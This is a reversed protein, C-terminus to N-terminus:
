ALREEILKAVAVAENEIAQRDEGEIMVRVLPETGSPRILVRGRGDMKKELVKIKETIVADDAYAHKNEESVRANVLVQPLITVVKSLRSLLMDERKMIGLLQIGTLIGDGTTNHDLFIIHGSQEGGLNYGSKLMEELVYRDGVDTKVVKIGQAKMGIELGLNSMVTGVLVDKKLMGRKKMDTACIALVVDGDILRGKEDVAMMRDADGDFALGVDAGLEKVIQQLHKPKTSGCNDNINNGDPSDHFATVKAGLARFVRPAIDSASGNACDLVLKIGSLPQESSDILFDIYEEVANKLRIRRGIGMGTPRKDDCGGKVLKEIEDEIEDALKYGNGNFFKIGNYEYSNHSASIMAGADVEYNKTLYAVASTSIVGLVNAEAGASCIGSVLACELMDGSIRTDRGVLIKPKHVAGALVKAASYGLKFALDSDLTDNAVGRVGDTGFLRAM